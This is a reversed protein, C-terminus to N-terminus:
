EPLRFFHMGADDLALYGGTGTHWDQLVYRTIKQQRFVHHHVAPRHTHGHVIIQASPYRTLAAQVGTETVDSIAYAAASQKKQQSAARLRTAIRQRMRFPLALLLKQVPACRMIKRYRLYANDNTCMEDGHTLLLMKKHAHLLYNEPLLTMNARQAYTKGVLFDRNGAVFYVPVYKSFQRLQEAVHAATNSNDDDGTWADFLDGLIYLSDTDYQHTQLFQCFLTTLDPTHESLHLDAIFLTRM